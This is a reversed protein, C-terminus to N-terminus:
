AKGGEDKKMRRLESVDENLLEVHEGPRLLSAALMLRETDTLKLDFFDDSRDGFGSIEVGDPTVWVSIVAYQQDRELDIQKM